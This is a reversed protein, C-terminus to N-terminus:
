AIFLILFICLFYGWLCIRQQRMQLIFFTIEKRRPALSEFDATLKYFNDNDDKLSFWRFILHTLRWQEDFFLNILSPLFFKFCRFSTNPPRSRLHLHKVKHPQCCSAYSEDHCPNSYSNGASEHRSKHISGGLLTLTSMNSSFLFFIVSIVNFLQSDTNLTTSINCKKKCKWSSLLFCRINSVQYCCHRPGIKSLLM